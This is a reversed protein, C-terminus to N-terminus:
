GLAAGQGLWHLLWLATAPRLPGESWHGKLGVEVGTEHVAKLISPSCRGQPGLSRRVVCGLNHFTSVYLSTLIWICCSRLYIAGSKNVYFNVPMLAFM